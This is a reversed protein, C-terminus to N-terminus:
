HILTPQSPNPLGDVVDPFANKWGDKCAERISGILKDVLGFEGLSTMSYVHAYTRYQAYQKGDEEFPVLIRESDVTYKYTIDENVMRFLVALSLESRHIWLDAGPDKLKLEAELKRLEYELQAAVKETEL